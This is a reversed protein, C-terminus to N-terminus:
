PNFRPGRIQFRPTKAVPSGPFDGRKCNQFLVLQQASVPHPYLCSDFIPTELLKLANRASGPAEVGLAM